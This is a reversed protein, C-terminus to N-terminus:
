RFSRAFNMSPNQFMAFQSETFARKTVWRFFHHQNCLLRIKGAIMGERKKSGGPELITGAPNKCNM